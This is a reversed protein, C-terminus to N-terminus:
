TNYAHPGLTSPPCATCRSSGVGESFTGKPCALCSAASNSGAHPSHLLRAQLSYLGRGESRELQGARVAFRIGHRHLVDGRQVAPM